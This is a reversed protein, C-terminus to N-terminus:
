LFLLSLSINLPLLFFCGFWSALSIARRYALSLYFNSTPSLRRVRTAHQDIRKCSSISTNSRTGGTYYAWLIFYYAAMVATKCTIYKHHNYHALYTGSWRLNFSVNGLCHKSCSSRQDGRIVALYILYFENLNPTILIEKLCLMTSINTCSRADFQM